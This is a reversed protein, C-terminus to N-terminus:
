DMLNIQEEKDKALTIMRQLLISRRNMCSTIAIHHTKYVEVDESGMMNNYSPTKRKLEKIKTALASDEELIDNFEGTEDVFGPYNSLACFLDIADEYDEYNIPTKTVIIM